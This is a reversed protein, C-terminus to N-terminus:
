TIARVRRRSVGKLKGSAGENAIKRGTGEHGEHKAGKFESARGDGSNTFM